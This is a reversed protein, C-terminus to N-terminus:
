PKAAPHAIFLPATAAKGAPLTRNQGGRTESVLVAFPDGNFCAETFSFSASSEHVVFMPALKGATTTYSFGGLVETQGGRRTEILTGGRETKFGLVWLAGGDNLVHTGENEPNLQRAWVQQKGIRIGAQPNSCLDEIFVDGAGTFTCPTNICSKLVLTRSSGNDFIPTPTYGGDIREIVVVPPAAPEDVLKFVPKDMAPADIAARCGIIRRVNKRVLITDTVRYKGAPLYVTEAGSDIAQQIAATADEELKKADQVYKQPCVWQKLDGWPVDPAEKIPLRLSKEASPFLNAPAASTFEDIAAGRVGTKDGARNELAQRYGTTQINRALLSGSNLIAPQTAAAGTGTFTSDILTLFGAKNNVANVANHSTLGRVALPQGGNFLGVVNQNELTLNELTQSNVGNATRVGADFGVVKLNMVLLPGILNTFALDLGAAGQGDGSVITVDALTGANNSIYQIGDAGPNHVGTDVTLNHINNCFRDATDGAGTWLVGQPKRPNDFGPCEDKLRIVAGGRSQGQLTTFSAPWGNKLGWRLTNSVLYVGNPLYIIAKHKELAQQIAATDDTQGDGKANFPPQTVDIVGADTPFAINEGGPLPAGLALQPHRPRPYKPFTIRPALEAQGAVRVWVESLGAVDRAGINGLIKLQVYRAKVPAKLVIEEGPEDDAGSAEILSFQGASAFEKNDSSTLLEFDKVGRFTWGKENYNWVHLGLVEQPQGLDFTIWGRMGDKYSLNWMTGGAAFKANTHLFLGSDPPDESIGSDDILRQPDTEETHSSAAVEVPKMMRGPLSTLPTLKTAGPVLVLQNGAISEVVFRRGKLIVKEGVEFGSLSKPQRAPAGPRPQTASPAGSPPPEGGVALTGGICSALMLFAISQHNKM